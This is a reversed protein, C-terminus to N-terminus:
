SGVAKLAHNAQEPTFQGGYESTLQDFLGSKSFSSFELYSKASDVAEANWDVMSNKELYAIAFEAEAEKFGAGYESTLQDLLGARSFDLNQLYAQASEIANQQGLTLSSAPQENPAVSPKVSTSNDSSNASSLNENNASTNGSMTGIFWLLGGVVIISVCGIGFCGLSRKQKVNVEITQTSPVAALSLESKLKEFEDPTIEGANRREILKELEDIPDM